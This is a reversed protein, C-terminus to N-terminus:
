WARRGFAQIYGDISRLMIFAFLMSTAPGFSRYYFGLGFLVNMVATGYGGIAM